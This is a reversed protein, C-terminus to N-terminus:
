QLKDLMKNYFKWWKEVGGFQKDIARGVPKLGKKILLRTFEYYADTFAYYTKKVKQHAKEYDAAPGENVNDKGGRQEFETLGKDGNFKKSWRKETPPKKSWENLKNIVIPHCEIITHSKPNYQQIATASYGCGFGIELVNGTPKIENIIAEMYPKEWEMMVQESNDRLLLEAGNEDLIYEQKYM